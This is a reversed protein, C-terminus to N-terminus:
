FREKTIPFISAFVGFIILSPCGHGKHLNKDLQIDMYIISLNQGYHFNQGKLFICISIKKIVVILVKLTSIRTMSDKVNNIIGNLVYNVNLGVSIIRMMMQLVKVFAVNTLSKVIPKISGRELVEEPNYIM